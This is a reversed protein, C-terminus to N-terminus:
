KGDRLGEAYYRKEVKITHYILAFILTTKIIKKQFFIESRSLEVFKEYIYEVPM